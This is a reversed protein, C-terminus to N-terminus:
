EQVFRNKRDGLLLRKFIQTFAKVQTLARIYAPEMRGTRSNAAEMPVRRVRPVLDKAVFAAEEALCNIFFKATPTDAGAMLLETTVMGPSLNHIGVNQINAQTLEACLSKGLQALSRKSAGYAAMRPTANGDAGAGDMNFIHGAPQDQMVRIAEKCCLMVGLVNTTVIESLEENSLSTMPGFKYTNTGANNIWIDITGFESKAWDALAVVDSSVGVNCARGKVRDAGFQQALEAVTQQVREDSRSTIIVRDGQLLFEEALARGVGKTSGTVLVNYPPQLPAAKRTPASPAETSASSCM